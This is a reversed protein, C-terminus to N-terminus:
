TKERRQNHEARPASSGGGLGDRVRGDPSRLEGPEGAMTVDDVRTAGHRRLPHRRESKAWKVVGALCTAGDSDPRAVGVENGQPSRESCRVLLRFAVLRARHVGVQRLSDQRPSRGAYQEDVNRCVAAAVVLRRGTHRKSRSAVLALGWGFRQALSSPSCRSRAPRSSRRAV